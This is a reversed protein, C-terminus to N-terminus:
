SISDTHKQVGKSTKPLATNVPKFKFMNKHYAYYLIKHYICLM